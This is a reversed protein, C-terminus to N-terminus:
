LNSFSITVGRKIKVICISFIAQVKLCIRAFVATVKLCIEFIGSM